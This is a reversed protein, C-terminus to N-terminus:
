QVTERVAAHLYATYGDMMARLSFDAARSRCATEGRPGALRAMMARAMAAADGVPVLTGCRETLVERVGTPCATAVVPTGCALAEILVNSAGEWRSSLVSLAARAVFAHPNAQYGGLWLDGGIGLAEALAKLRAREAAPGDGLIVLRMPRVQRAAAFARILTAFDKQPSLRGVAIVVPPAGAAFWPHDVPAQAERVIADIDVGNPIVALREPSVGQSQLDDGLERSVAIVGDMMGYQARELAAASRRILGAALGARKPPTAAALANSARAVLRTGSAGSLRHAACAFAHMHNGSSFLVVPRLRRIAAALAPVARLSDAARSLRPPGEAIVRVPLRGTDEAFAGSRRVVWLEAALGSAAAARAIRIANRVVGSARLDYVLIAAQIAVTSRRVPADPARLPRWTDTEVRRLTGASQM